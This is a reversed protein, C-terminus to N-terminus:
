MKKNLQKTHKQSKDKQELKRLKLMINDQQKANNPM